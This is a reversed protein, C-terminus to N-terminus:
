RRISSSPGCAKWVGVVLVSCWKANRTEECWSASAPRYFWMLVTVLSPLFWAETLCVATSTSENSDTSQKVHIGNARWTTCNPGYFISYLSRTTILTEKHGHRYRQRWHIRSSLASNGLFVTRGPIQSGGPMPSASAM